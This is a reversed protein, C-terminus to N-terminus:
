DLNKRFKKLKRYAGILNKHRVDYIFKDIISILDSSESYCDEITALELDGTLGYLFGAIYNPVSMPGFGASSQLMVQQSSSKIPGVAETFAMAIDVGAEFYSDAAWDEKEKALDAKITKRHFLWHKGLTEVLEVPKTFITAWSEIAQLDDDMNECTSLASKFESVM